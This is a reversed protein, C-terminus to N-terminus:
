KKAISLFNNIIEEGYETHEVEPHFLTGYIPKKKHKMAHNAVDKSHALIKFGPAKTVEDNHSAWVIFRKPLGQFLEDSEDVVLEVRGFEPVKAPKTEGGFHLAMLQHGACIGLIPGEFKDLYERCAGVKEAEGLGIRIAGGSLILADADLAHLPTTHQIIQAEFGSDRVRRWIRHTWQGGLDIVKVKM